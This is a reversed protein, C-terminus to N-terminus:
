SRPMLGRGGPRLLRRRVEGPIDTPMAITNAHGPVPHEWRGGLIRHQPVVVRMGPKHPVQGDLLMRVPAQTATAGRPIQLLTPLKGGGACFVWPQLLAGLHHLLLGQSVESSRHGSEEVPPIRRPPRRPPFRPPVFSKPKNSDPWALNTVQGTVDARDPHWLCTPHPEAPGARHWGISLGAADGPVTSPASVDGEGGNGVRNGRWAIPFRYANVPTYRNRRGQRSTFQQM